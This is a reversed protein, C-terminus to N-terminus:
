RRGILKLGKKAYKKAIKITKEKVTLKQNIEYFTKIINSEKEAETFVELLIPNDSTKVFQPMVNELKKKNSATLYEFDSLEIADRIDTTHGASIHKRLTPIKEEGFNTHFEGGAHNNILLVRINKDHKSVISNLAYLFSLDGIILFSLGDHVSAEGLFTPMCGDIGDAGLNSFTVTNGKSNFNFLRVSNLISLHVLSNDPIVECFKKIIYSNSFELEPIKVEKLRSRWKNAYQLNNNGNAQSMGLLFQKLEMRFITELADYNDVYDESESIHWHIIKNYNNRLKYKLFSFIHGGITIVIEPCYEIFEKETMSETILCTKIGCKPHLNSTEEYVVICNYRDYIKDILEELEKKDRYNSQGLIIMIKNKNLLSKKKQEFAENIEKIISVKRIKPLKSNRCLDIRNVQFNIQVPGTNANETCALLAENCKRICYKLDHESKVIPLNVDSITFDGYMNNQPILQDEGQQLLYNDRDATLLILKIGRKRAEVVAPFYNCTATSSTCSVCAPKGTSEALGLAFYAASREDVVSYCKFYSDREVSHVLPVNRTGPSLVMNKIGYQKLLSIIVQVNKLDSYM